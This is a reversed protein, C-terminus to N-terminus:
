KAVVVPATLDYDKDTRLLDAKVRGKRGKDRGFVGGLLRALPHRMLFLLVALGAGGAAGPRGSVASVGKESFESGKDIVGHWADSALTSPKLRYKLQAITAQLDTQSAVVKAEAAILEREGM